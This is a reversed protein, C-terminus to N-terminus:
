AAQWFGVAPEESSPDLLETVDNADCNWDQDIADAMDSSALWLAVRSEHKPM